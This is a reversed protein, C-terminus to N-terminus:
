IKVFKERCRLKHRPRLWCNRVGNSSPSIAFIYKAEGGIELPATWDIRKDMRLNMPFTKIRAAGSIWGVKSYSVHRDRSFLRAAASPCTSSTQVQSRLGRIGRSTRNRYIPSPLVRHYVIQRATFLVTATRRQREGFTNSGHIRPTLPSLRPSLQM